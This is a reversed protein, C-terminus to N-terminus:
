LISYLLFRGQGARLSWCPNSAGPSQGGGVSGRVLDFIAISFSLPGVPTFAAVVELACAVRWGTAVVFLM